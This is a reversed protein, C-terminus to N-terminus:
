QHIIFPFFFISRSMNDILTSAVNVGNTIRYLITKLYMSRTQTHTHVADLWWMVGGSLSLGITEGRFLSILTLENKKKENWKEQNQRM